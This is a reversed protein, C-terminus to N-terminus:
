SINNKKNLKRIRKIPITRKREQKKIGVIKGLISTSLILILSEPKAQGM